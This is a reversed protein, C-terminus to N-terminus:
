IKGIKQDAGAELARLYAKINENLKLTHPTISPDLLSNAPPKM